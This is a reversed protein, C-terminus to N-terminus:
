YFTEPHRRCLKRPLHDVAPQLGVNANRACKKNLKQRDHQLKM